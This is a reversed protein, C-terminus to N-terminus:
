CANRRAVSTNMPTAMIITNRELWTSHPPGHKSTARRETRPSTIEPITFGALTRPKRSTAPSQSGVSANTMPPASKTATGAKRTIRFRGRGTRASSNSSGAFFSRPARRSAPEASNPTPHARPTRDPNAPSRAPRPARAQTRTRLPSPRPSPVKCAPRRALTRCSLTVWLPDARLWWSLLSGLTSLIGDGAPTRGPHGSGCRLPM